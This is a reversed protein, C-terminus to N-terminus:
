PEAKLVKKKALTKEYVRVYERAAQEWSFNEAM